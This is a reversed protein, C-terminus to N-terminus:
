WGRAVVLASRSPYLESRDLVAPQVMIYGRKDDCEYLSDWLWFNSKMWLQGTEPAKYCVTEVRGEVGTEPAQTRNIVEGICRDGEQRWWGRCM